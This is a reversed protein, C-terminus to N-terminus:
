SAFLGTANHVSNENVISSKLYGTAKEFKLTAEVFTTEEFEDENVYSFSYKVVTFNESEEVENSLFTVSDVRSCLSHLQKNVLRTGMYSCAQITNNKFVLATKVMTVEPEKDVSPRKVEEVDVKKYHIKLSDLTEVHISCNSLDKIKFNYCNLSCGYVSSVFNPFEISVIESIEWRSPNSNKVLVDGVKYGEVENISKSM